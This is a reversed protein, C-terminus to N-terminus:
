SRAVENLFSERIVADPPPVIFRRNESLLVYHTLYWFGIFLAFVLLVPGYHWVAAALRGRARVDPPAHTSEGEARPGDFGIQEPEAILTM